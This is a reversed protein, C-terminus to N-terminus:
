HRFDSAAQRGSPSGIPLRASGIKWPFHRRKANASLLKGHVFKNEPSPGRYEDEAKRYNKGAVGLFGSNDGQCRKRCGLSVLGDRPSGHRGNTKLARCVWSVPCLEVAACAGPRRALM